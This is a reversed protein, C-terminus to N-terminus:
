QNRRATPAIEGRAADWNPSTTILNMVCDAATPVAAAVKPTCSEDFTMLDQAEVAVLRIDGDEPLIAGCRRGVQLANALTTDHTNGSHCTALDGLGLEFVTGPEAGTSIADIVIARRYGAMQEMLRLGGHTDQMLDVGVPNLAGVAELVVLGVGDDRLLPNALGIVLLEDQTHDAM